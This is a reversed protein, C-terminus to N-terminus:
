ICTNSFAPRKVVPGSDVTCLEVSYVWLSKLERGIAAEVSSEVVDALTCCLVDAAGAVTAAAFVGM